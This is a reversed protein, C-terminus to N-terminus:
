REKFIFDNSKLNEVMERFPSSLKELQKHWVMGLCTSFLDANLNTDTLKTSATSVMRSWRSYTFADFAEILSYSYLYFSHFHIAYLIYDIYIRYIRLTM